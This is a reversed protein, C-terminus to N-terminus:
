RALIRTQNMLLLQTIKNCGLRSHTQLVQSTNYRKAFVTGKVKLSVGM